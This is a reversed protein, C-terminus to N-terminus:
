TAAGLSEAHQWYTVYLIDDNNDQFHNKRHLIASGNKLYIALFLASGILNSKSAVRLGTHICHTDPLLNTLGTINELLRIMIGSHLEWLCQRSVPSLQAQQQTNPQEFFIGKDQMLANYLAALYEPRVFHQILLSESNCFDSNAYTARMHGYSFLAKHQKDPTSM